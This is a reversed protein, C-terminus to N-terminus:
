FAIFESDTSSKEEKKSQPKPTEEKLYVMFRTEHRAGMSRVLTRIAEIMRGSKGIVRPIDEESVHLLFEANDGDERTDITIASTNTCIQELSYKIFAEAQHIPNM